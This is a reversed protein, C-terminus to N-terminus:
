KSGNDIRGKQVFDIDHYTFLRQQFLTITCQKLKAMLKKGVKEYFTQLMVIRGNCSKGEYEIFICNQNILHDYNM